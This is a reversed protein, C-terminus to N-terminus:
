EQLVKEKPRKIELESKEVAKKDTLEWLKSYKLFTSFAEHVAVIFGARGELFGKKIIYFKLFRVIPNAILNILNFQKGQQVL